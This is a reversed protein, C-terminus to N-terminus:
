NVKKSPQFTQDDGSDDSDVTLIRRRKKKGGGGEPDNEKSGPSVQDEEEDWDEDSPLHLVLVKDLRDANSLSEIERAEKLGKEWTEDMGEGKVVNESWAKLLDKSIWSRTVPDDFFQM